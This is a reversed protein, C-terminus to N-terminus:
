VACALATISGEHATRDGERRKGRRTENSASHQQEHEDDTGTHCCPEIPDRVAQIGILEEGDPDCCGRESLHDLARGFVRIGGRLDHVLGTM